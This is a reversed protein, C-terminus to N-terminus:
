SLKEHNGILVPGTLEIPRQEVPFTRRSRSGTMMFTAFVQSIRLTPSSSGTGPAPFDDPNM